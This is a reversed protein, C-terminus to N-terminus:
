AYNRKLTNYPNLPAPNQPPLEARMLFNNFQKNSKQRSIRSCMTFNMIGAAAAAAAAADAQTAYFSFYNV